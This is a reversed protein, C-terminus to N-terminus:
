FCLKSYMAFDDEGMLPKYWLLYHCKLLRIVGAFGRGDLGGYSYIWHPISSMSSGFGCPPQDWIGHEYRVLGLRRALRGLAPMHLPIEAVIVVGAGYCRRIDAVLGGAVGRIPNGKVSAVYEVVFVGRGIYSGQIYGVPKDDVFVGYCHLDPNRELWYVIENTDTKIDEGMRGAYISLCSIFGPDDPNAFRKLTLGGKAWHTWTTWLTNSM